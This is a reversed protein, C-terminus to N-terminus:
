DQRGKVIARPRGSLAAIVPLAKSAGIRISERVHLTFRATSPIHLFLRAGNNHSRVSPSAGAPDMNEVRAPWSSFTSEMRGPRRGVKREVAARSSERASPYRAKMPDFGSRPTSTHSLQSAGVLEPPSFSGEASGKSSCADPAALAAQALIRRIRKRKKVLRNFTLYRLNRGELPYFRIADRLSVFRSANRRREFRQSGV